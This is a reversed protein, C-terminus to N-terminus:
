LDSRRKAAAENWLDDNRYELIVNLSQDNAPIIQVDITNKNKSQWMTRIVINGSKIKRIKATNILGPVDDVEKPKGYIVKIDSVLSDYYSLIDDDADTFAFFADCAKNNIFFISAVFVPRGSVSFGSFALMDKKSLTDIQTGGKALVTAKVTASDSGFPIDMFGDISKKSQAFALCPLLFLLLFLNRKM